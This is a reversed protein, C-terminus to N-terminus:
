AALELGPYVFMTFIQIDIQRSSPTYAVIWIEEIDGPLPAYGIHVGAQNYGPRTLGAGVSEHLYHWRGNVKVSITVSGRYIPNQFEIYIYDSMDIGHQLLAERAALAVYDPDHSPDTELEPRPLPVRIAYNTRVELERDLVLRFNHNASAVAFVPRVEGGYDFPILRHIPAQYYAHDVEGNIFTVFYILERDIPQGFLALRRKIFMGGSEDTTYLHYRITLMEDEPATSPTLNQDSQAASETVTYYVGIKTDDLAPFRRDDTLLLPAHTYALRDIRPLNPNNALYNLQDIEIFNSHEIYQIAERPDGFFRAEVRSPPVTQLHSMSVAHILLVVLFTALAFSTSVSLGPYQETEVFHRISRTIRNHM